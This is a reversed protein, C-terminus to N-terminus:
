AILRFSARLERGCRGAPSIVGCELASIKKSVRRGCHIWREDVHNGCPSKKAMPRKVAKAECVVSLETFFMQARRGVVRRLHEAKMTEIQAM